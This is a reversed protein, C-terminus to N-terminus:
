RSGLYYLGLRTGPMPKFARGGKPMVEPDEITGLVKM